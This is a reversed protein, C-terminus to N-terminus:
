PTGSSGAPANFHYMAATSSPSGREINLAPYISDSPMPVPFSSFSAIRMNLIDATDPTGSPISFIDSSQEDPRTAPPSAAAKLQHREAASVPNMGAIKRMAVM